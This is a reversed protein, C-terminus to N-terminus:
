VTPRAPPRDGTAQQWQVGGDFTQRQRPSGDAGAHPDPVPSVPAFDVPPRRGGDPDGRARGRGATSPWHLVLGRGGAPGRTDGDPRAYQRGAEATALRAQSKGSSREHRPEVERTAAQEGERWKRDYAARGGGAPQRNQPQAQGPQRSHQTRARGTGATRPRSGTLQGTAQAWARGTATGPGTPPAHGPRRGHPLLSAVRIM